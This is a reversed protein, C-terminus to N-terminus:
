QLVEKDFDTSINKKSIFDYLTLKRLQYYYTWYNNLESVYRLMANDRDSQASNLELVSVSGEAFLKMITQYNEQALTDAKASIACQQGQNKFNLVNLLVNQKHQIRKQNIQEDVMEQQSKAMQVRGKGMGWDLIPIRMGLRVGEQDKPRHYSDAFTNGTQNLGFQMYLDASLGQNAKAQVVASEAELEQIKIDSEFSTNTLSLQYVDNYEINLQPVESPLILDVTITEDLSLYSKLNFHAMNLAINAQNVSLGANLLNLELQQLESKKISGIKFREKAIELMAETNEYNFQAIKLNQQASAMDFFYQIAQLAIDEMNELYVLKAKKYREPEIEKDWKLQNFSGFIPQSYTMFVPSSSYNAYKNPSFQDMRELSSSVSLKGGSFALNQDISLAVNNRMVFNQVYKYNGTEYDQVTSISHNFNPINLALNLSPLLEAKFSRYQWYSSRFQHKAIFSSTSYEKAYQIVDELTLILKKETSINKEQATTAISFLSFCYGILLLRFYKGM